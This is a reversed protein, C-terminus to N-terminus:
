YSYVFTIQECRKPTKLEISIDEFDKYWVYTKGNGKLGFSIESIKGNKDKIDFRARFVYNKVKNFSDKIEDLKKLIEDKGMLSAPHYDLTVICGFFDFAEVENKM